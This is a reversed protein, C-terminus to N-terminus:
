RDSDGPRARPLALRDNAALGSPAVRPLEQARERGGNALVVSVYPLVMAAVLFAARWWGPMVVALVFCCTRVGMSILYRRQRADVDASVPRRAGTIRYVPEATTRRPRRRM